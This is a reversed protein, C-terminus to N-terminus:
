RMLSGVILSLALTGIVAFPLPVNAVVLAAGCLAVVIAAAGRRAGQAHVIPRLTRIGSAVILGAAACLVAREAALVPAFRQFVTALTLLLVAVITSPVTIALLSVAVGRWGAARDGVIAALNTINAGPLLQGLGLLEAFEADTLWHAREVLLTRAHPGVGGFGRLALGTWMLALETLSRGRIGRFEM